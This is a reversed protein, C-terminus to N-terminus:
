NRRRKQTNNGNKLQKDIELKKIRAKVLNSLSDPLIEYGAKILDELYISAIGNHQRISIGSLNLTKSLTENEIIVGKDLKETYDLVQSVLLEPIRITKTKGHKWKSKAGAGLRAGGRAM